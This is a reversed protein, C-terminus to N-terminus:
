EFVVLDLFTHFSKFNIKVHIKKFSIPFEVHYSASHKINWKGTASVCFLSGIEQFDQIATPPPARIQVASVAPIFRM